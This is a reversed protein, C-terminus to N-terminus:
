PYCLSRLFLLLYQPHARQYCLSLLPRGGETWHRLLQGPGVALQGEETSVVAEFDILEQGPMIQWTRTSDYLSPMSWPGLGYQQRQGNDRLERQPQYGIGPLWEYNILYSGNQIVSARIGSHSFGQAQYQVRFSLRLSDGPQLPRELRYLNHGLVRDELLPTFPRDLHLDSTIVGEATALHLTDIAQGSENVLLYTAQVDAKRQSPHLDLQLSVARLLPQPLHKYRGYQLEYRANRETREAATTYANLVNTNYYIYGGTLGIGGLAVAAVALTFRSLRQRALQLRMRLSPTASRMWLLRGGVALLLAWALWYGKFWLWPGLHPDFGRMDTYSWGPDSAYILLKHELGIKAPFVLVLYILLMAGHGLYKQNVLVHVVLALLAFLLYEVLQFGFLAQLLVGPQLQQYGMSLPILLGALLLFGLWVLVIGALGCFKGLLLSWESVPATDSLSHMGWDRERWVLEGAYFVILVPIILLPTQSDRLPATLMGLLNMVTPYQPGGRFELYEVAFLIMQATLLGVILLGGRSKAIMRFSSGAIAATQRLGTALGFSPTLPPVLLAAGERTNVPVALPSPGNKRFRIRSWWPSSVAHVFQFRLYAVALAGVALSLWILRNWLFSGELELLRNNKEYSTWTDLGGILTIGLPDILKVLEWNGSLKGALTGMIPFAVPFLLISAIYAVIANRELVAASFQWATGIFALPLSLYGYTTLVAEPRFPGLLAPDVSRLTFSAYFSLPIALHLLANLLFAAAFRGGLYAAKHVPATYTLAHMRTHVDRAAAHGAIAGATLLWLVSTFVTVFILFSPANLFVSSDSPNGIASFFLPFLLALGLYIWTAGQRLQYALEFRIITWFKM